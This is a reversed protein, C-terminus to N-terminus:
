EFLDDMLVSIKKAREETAQRDVEITINLVDGEKADKPLLEKPINFTEDGYEVIAWDGEFRDVILM